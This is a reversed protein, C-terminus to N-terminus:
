MSGDVELLQRQKENFIDSLTSQDIKLGRNTCLRATGRQGQKLDAIIIYFLTDRQEKYADARTRRSKSNLAKGKKERYHQENVTYQDRFKGFTYRKVQNYDYLKKGKLYLIKLRFKNYYDWYGRKGKNMRVHFLGRARHLVAYKDLMFVSPMVIIIFLNKQRMEMMLGVILQNMETLSSRSSLGTFAEDFVICSFPKANVVAKMFDQPTFCLNKLTFNPDLIVALQQAFVSKGSGEEGDVIIVYDFDAKQVSPQVNKTLHNYLGGDMYLNLKGYEVELPVVVM